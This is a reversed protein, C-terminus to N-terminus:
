MLLSSHHNNVPVFTLLDIIERDTGRIEQVHFARDRPGGEEPM